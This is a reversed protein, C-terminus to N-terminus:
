SNRTLSSCVIPRLQLRISLSPSLAMIFRSTSKTLRTLSFMLRQLELTRFVRQIQKTSVTPLRQQIDLPVGM